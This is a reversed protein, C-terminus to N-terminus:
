EFLFYAAKYGAQVAGAVNSTQQADGIVYLIDSMEQLKDVLERYPRYGLALIVADIKKVVLQQADLDLLVVSEETIEQLQHLPYYGIHNTKLRESVGEIRQMDAVSVKNGQAALKEAIELGTLGSGIIMIQNQEFSVRKRLIDDVSYVNRLDTGRVLPPIFPVAGTAIFVAWPNLERIAEPTAECNLRLDIELERLCHEYYEVVWYLKEKAPVYKGIVAQGGVEEKKEFLVPQFGRKKLTQAAVLGAPGSGAIVVIRNEGNQKLDTYYTECGTRPNVSCRIPKGASVAELCGQCCICKRVETDREECAKLGWNEDALFGRGVGVFDLIGKQLLEEAFEPTRILNVAIIPINVKEKIPRIMDTRWGQNYSVPEVMSDMTEYTGCSVHIADIGAKELFRAIKIGEEGHIYDEKIGVSDLREDASIRIILPYDNGVEKRIGSIIEKVFRMRNEFSGGYVDQRHNSFPSMFQHILYGHAGGLEIGDCGATKARLAADIYHQQLRQIEDVRLEEITNLDLSDEVVESKPAGLPQEGIRLGPHYLQLFLKCKYRHVTEALKSFGAINQDQTLSLRREQPFCGKVTGICVAETIIIGAGGRARELYLAIMDDSPTGDKQALGTHMATMVIHNKTTLRGIKGEKALMRGMIGKEKRFKV